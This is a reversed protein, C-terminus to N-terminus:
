EEEDFPDLGLSDIPRNLPNDDDPTPPQEEDVPRVVVRNGRVETVRVPQGPEIFMGESVADITRGEIFIAGSPLMKSKAQGTKGVLGKLLRRRPNDPLADDGSPTMLLIRRGMATKPWYRLAAVIAVPLGIVSTILIAMGFLPGSKFAVVISAIVACVTLFGLIGGTPFFVELVALGIGMVLLLIAWAWYDM